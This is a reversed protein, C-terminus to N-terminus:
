IDKKKSSATNIALKLEETLTAKGKANMVIEECRYRGIIEEGMISLYFVLNDVENDPLGVIGRTYGIAFKHPDNEARGCWKAYAGAVERIDKELAIYRETKPMSEAKKLVEAVSKKLSPDEVVERETRSDFSSQSGFYDRSLPLSGVFEKVEDFYRKKEPMESAGMEEIAQRELGVIERRMASHKYFYDVHDQTRKVEPFLQSSPILEIDPVDILEPLNNSRPIYCGGQEKLYRAFKLPELVEIVLTENGPVSARLEFRYKVQHYIVGNLITKIGEINNKVSPDSERLQTYDMRLCTQMLWDGIKSMLESEDKMTVMKM